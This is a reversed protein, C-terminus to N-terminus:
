INLIADLMKDAGIIMLGLAELNKVWEYPVGTCGHYAGLINGCISALSCRNGEFAAAAGVAAEFDMGYKLVNYVALAIVEEGAFGDGLEKMADSVSMDSEALRLANMLTRSCNEAGSWKSLEALGAKAAEDIQAGQLISSILFALYGAPLIADIHGHTLAAAECAIKFAMKEDSCFYMGIPASRMVAGCGKSNNIRNQLSGYTNNISGELAKLSTIGEGRRAYLEDWRLIEGGLIFSYTKDALSGTQTYYWKQYSYFLCPIYAYVGRSKARGAAWVLGDVTFSTLQTNDSILDVGNACTRYAKADAVAGGTICGRFHTKDIKM